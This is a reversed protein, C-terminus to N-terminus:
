VNIVQHRGDVWVPYQVFPDLLAQIAVELRAYDLFIQGAATLGIGRAKSRLLIFASAGDRDDM